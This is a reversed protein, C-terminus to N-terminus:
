IKIIERGKESLAKREDPTMGICMGTLEMVTNTLDNLDDANKFGFKEMLEDCLQGNSRIQRNLLQRVKHRIQRRQDRGSNEILDTAVSEFMYASVMLAVALAAEKQETTM